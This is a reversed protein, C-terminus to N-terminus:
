LKIFKKFYIKSGTDISILYLGASLDHVNLKGNENAQLLLSESFLNQFNFDYINIRGNLQEPNKNLINLQDNVPNPCISFLEGDAIDQIGVPYFECVDFGTGYLPSWALITDISNNSYCILSKNDEFLPALVTVLGFTSGIGEILDVYQMDYDACDVCSIRLRKRFQGGILVSDLVDVYNTLYVDPQNYSIPLTDGEHLSFDYLLYEITDTASNLRLFVKENLTDEKLYGFMEYGVADWVRYIYGHSDEEDHYGQYQRQLKRYLNDNLLTDSGFYYRYFIGAGLVGDYTVGYYQMWTASTDMLPVYNQATVNKCIISGLLIAVLTKM